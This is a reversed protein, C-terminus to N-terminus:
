PSLSGHSHSCLSGSDRSAVSFISRGHDCCARCSVGHFPVTACRADLSDPDNHECECPSYISPIPISTKWRDRDVLEGSSFGHDCSAFGDPEATKNSRTQEHRGPKSTPRYKHVSTARLPCRSISIPIEAISNVYVDQTIVLLPISRPPSNSRSSCYTM